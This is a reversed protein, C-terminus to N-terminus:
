RLIIRETLYYTDEIVVTLLIVKTSYGELNLDFRKNSYSDKVMGEKLIKGETSTLYYLSNDPAEFDLEVSVKGSTPNPYVTMSYPNTGDISQVSATPDTILRVEYMSADASTTSTQNMSFPNLSTSHIGGFVHGLVITDASISGLEIVGHGTQPLSMNPIFESSAGQFGPMEVSLDYETLNGSSDRTLRSITKVFPVNDDQILSGNQYYYQSMGGFFLNHMENLDSDYLSVRAGHYNSLYQNFGTIPYYNTEDIDVPYLYPLDAGLQFVGSSITFGMSGNPFVQPLLNYDRRRLHIPDTYTGVNAFSLQSGSNDITFKRVQNTYAQTYTPHGMPNYRGDFKQGGVLYFTDGLKNLQGGTVAFSTDGIQKFYPTINNGNVVADIVASVQVTTLNSFTKHDSISNSYSYGGIIVLTDGDQHFNMNTSQLQEAISTSLANLSASWFQQANVDIVFLDTNNQSGPFANFPQRAHLGDLRGGIILWKGDHQGFAYSHLGTLNPINVPTIDVTYPFSSQAGACYIYLVFLTLSLFRKM